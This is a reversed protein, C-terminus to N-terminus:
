NKVILTLIFFPLLSLFLNLLSKRYSFKQTISLGILFIRINLVWIVFQFGANVNDVLPEGGFILLILQYFLILCGPIVALSHVNSLQTTSAAGNWIKGILGLLWPQVLGLFIYTIGIGVGSWLLYNLLIAYLEPEEDFFAIIVHGIDLGMSTGYLIFPLAFISQDSGEKFFVELTEKPKTWITLYPNQM